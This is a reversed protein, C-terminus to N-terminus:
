KMKETLLLKLAAVRKPMKLHKQLAHQITSDAMHALEPLSKRLQGATMATYKKIQRKLVVLASLDKSHKKKRGSWAKKELPSVRRLSAGVAALVRKITARDPGMQTSIESTAIGANKYAINSAKDETSLHRVGKGNSQPTM